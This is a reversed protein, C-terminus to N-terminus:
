GWGWGARPASTNDCKPAGALGGTKEGSYTRPAARAGEPPGQSCPWGARQLPGPAAGLDMAQTWRCLWLCCVCRREQMFIAEKRFSM